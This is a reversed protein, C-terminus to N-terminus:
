CHVDVAWRHYINRQPLCIVHEWPPLAVALSGDVEIKRFARRGNPGARLIEDLARRADDNWGPAGAQLFHSSFRGAAKSLTFDPHILSELGEAVRRCHAYLTRMLVNEDIGLIRGVPLHNQMVLTDTRRGVVRHLAMRVRLLFDLAEELGPLSPIHGFIKRIWGIAALDRLGGKGEKLNPELEAGADGHKDWRATCSESLATLIKAQSKRADAIIKGSWQRFLDQDGEILRADFFSTATDFSAASLRFSEKPTAPTLGLDFGADWLVYSLAKCAEDVAVSRDHLVLLDLDSTPCLERRGYSGLAVLAWKGFPPGMEQWIKRLASDALETWSRAAPIGPGDGGEGLLRARELKLSQGATTESPTAEWKEPESAM